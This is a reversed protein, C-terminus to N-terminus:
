LVPADAQPKITIGVKNLSQVARDVYSVINNSM